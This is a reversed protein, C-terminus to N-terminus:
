ENATRESERDRTPSFGYLPYESLCRCQRAVRAIFEAPPMGWRRTEGSVFGVLVGDHDQEVTEIKSPDFFVKGIEVLTLLAM